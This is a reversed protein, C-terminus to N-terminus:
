SARSRSRVCCVASYKCCRMQACIASREPAPSSDPITSASSVYTPPLGRYPSLVFVLTFVLVAHGSPFGIETIPVDFELIVDDLIAAPRGRGVIAKVGKAALWGLTFGGILLAVPPRWHRTLRWLAVAAFPVVLASGMQQLVWLMWEVNHPLENLRRFISEEWTAPPDEVLLVALVLTGFAIVIGDRRPTRVWTIDTSDTM